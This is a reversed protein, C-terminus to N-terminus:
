APGDLVAGRRAPVEWGHTAGCPCCGGRGGGCRPRRRSYSLVFYVVVRAPLLRVRREACGAEQVVEDVLSPPVWRTLAGLHGPLWVWSRDRVVEGTACQVSLPAGVFRSSSM